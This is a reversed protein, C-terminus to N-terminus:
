CSRCGLALFEKHLRDYDQDSLVRQNSLIPKYASKVLTLIERLVVHERDEEDRGCQKWISSVKLTKYAPFPDDPPIIPQKRLTWEKHHRMFDYYFPERKGTFQGLRFVCIPVGHAILVPYLPWERSKPGYYDWGNIANTTFAIRALWRLWIGDTGDGDVRSYERLIALAKTQGKGILMNAVKILHQSDNSNYDDYVDRREPHMMTMAARLEAEDVPSAPDPAAAGMSKFQVSNGEFTITGLTPFTHHGSTGYCWKEHGYNVYNISDNGLWIDDPEGLINSVQAKTWGEKVKSIAAYFAIRSRLPKTATTSPGILSLALALTVFMSM